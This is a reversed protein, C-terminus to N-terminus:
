EKNILNEERISILFSLAEHIVSYSFARRALIGTIKKRFEVDSIKLFRSIYKKGLTVASDLDDPAHELAHNIISDSIGKKNLEMKIYQKSRPKSQSRLEVWQVAFDKDNVYEKELLEDLVDTITERSFNLKELKQVVEKETRQKYGIFRFASQLAREKEDTNLLAAIRDATLKQGVSLWAGVFRSLGFAFEGDLSVNIRDPNKVQPELATITKDMLKLFGYGIQM